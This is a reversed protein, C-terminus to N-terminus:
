NRQPLENWSPCRCTRGIDDEVQEPGMFSAIGGFVPATRLVPAVFNRDGDVQLLLIGIKLTSNVKSDQMLYRRVIGDEVTKESPGNPPANSHRPPSAADKALAESEDVYESLNLRIHGLTIKEAVPFEQVVELELYCETLNDNRDIPIRVSPVLKAFGYDVRHNAILCKATRGRHEAHMSHALHWKIFSHGSVLPVNNLDYIKRM